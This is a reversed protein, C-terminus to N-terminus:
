AADNKLSSCPLLHYGSLGTQLTPNPLSIFNFDASGDNNRMQYEIDVPTKNETEYDGKL